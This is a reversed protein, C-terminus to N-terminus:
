RGGGALAALDRVILVAHPVAERDPLTAQWAKARGALADYAALRAILAEREAVMGEYMARYSADAAALRQALRDLANEAQVAEAHDTVYRGIANRLTDLDERPAAAPPTTFPEPATTNNRGEWIWQHMGAHGSPLMCPQNWPGVVAACGSAKADEERAATPARLRTALQTLDEANNYWKSAEYVADEDRAVTDNGLRVFVLAVADALERVADRLNDTM